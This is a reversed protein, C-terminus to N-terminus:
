ARYVTATVFPRGLATGIGPCRRLRQVSTCFWTSDETCQSLVLLGPWCSVNVWIPIFSPWRQLRRALM